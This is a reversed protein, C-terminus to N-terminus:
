FNYNQWQGLYDANCNTRNRAIKIFVYYVVKKYM